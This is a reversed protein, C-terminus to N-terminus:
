GLKLKVESDTNDRDDGNTELAIIRGARTKMIFDPYHNLFGISVPVRAARGM